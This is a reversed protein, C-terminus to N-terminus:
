RLARGYVELENLAIYGRVPMSLRVYRAHRQHLEVRWTDFHADRRGAIDFRTGDESVWLELPLSDDFWGDGRNYVIAHDLVYPGGLDVDVFPRSTDITALGFTGRTKGDVIHDATPSEPRLPSSTVLKGLAVNHVLYHNRVYTGVVWVVLLAVGLARGARLARVALVSPARADGLAASVCDDLADRVSEAEAFPLDDAALPSGDSLFDLARRKSGPLRTDLPAAGLATVLDFEGPSTARLALDLAERLLVIAVAASSSKRAVARRARAARAFRARRARDADDLSRARREANELLFVERLGVFFARVTTM